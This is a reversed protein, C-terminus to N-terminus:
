DAEALAEVQSEAWRREYQEALKMIAKVYESPDGTFYREEFLAQVFQAACGSRLAAFSKPFDGRLTGIYDKAGALASAYVRFRHVRRLKRGGILEGTGYAVGGSTAKIGGYNYGWMNQGLGTELAWQALLLSLTRVQPNEGVVVIYALELHRRAEYATMPTRGRNVEGAAMQSLWAVNFSATKANEDQPAVLLSNPERLAPGALLGMLIFPLDM